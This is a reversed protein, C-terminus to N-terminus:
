VKYQNEYLETSKRLGNNHIKELQGGQLMLQGRDYM